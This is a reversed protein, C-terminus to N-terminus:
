KKDNLNDQILEKNLFKYTEVNPYPCVFRLKNDKEDSYFYFALMESEPLSERLVLLPFLKTIKVNEEITLESHALYLDGSVMPKDTRVRDTKSPNLGVGKFVEVDNIFGSGDFKSQIPRILTTMEFFERLELKMNKTLSDASKAAARVSSASPLGRHAIDNRLETSSELIKIVKENSFLPILGVKTSSSNKLDKLRNYGFAMTLSKVKSQGKKQEILKSKDPPSQGFGISILYLGLYEFFKMYAECKDKDDFKSEALEWIIALPTPLIQSFEQEYRNDVSQYPALQEQASTLDLFVSKKLLSVRALVAECEEWFGILKSQEPISPLAFRTNLWASLHINKFGSASPFNSELWDKGEEQHLFINYFEPLLVEQNIEFKIPNREKKSDSLSKYENVKGTHSELVFSGDNNLEVVDKLRIIQGALIEDRTHTKQFFLNFNIEYGIVGLDGDRLDRRTNNVWADSSFPSVEKTFYNEILEQPTLNPDLPLNEYDRLDSDAEFQVVKGNYEIAGTLSKSEGELEKKIVPEAKLNKNTIAALFQEKENKDLKLDTNILATELDVKFQNFDHHEDDGIEIKLKEAKEMLAYQYLWVERNLLEDIQRQKLEPFESNIFSLVESRYPELDGYNDEPKGKNWKDAYINFLAEMAPRNKNAVYRLSEISKSTIKASLRLPREICLRRYGVQHTNIIRCAYDAGEIDADVEAFERLCESIVQIHQQELVKRKAGLPKRMKSYLNSADILQVKGKRNAEKNNSLVWIFTAIGTNYFLDTPLAVIAELLDNELIFRRIESEGSGAGGSFMPSGNFIVGIRGGESVEGQVTLPDRMKNVLHMLFLLSGDSVRPLGAGFRGHHGKQHEEKIDREIAKWFLGFPPHSLLYDFKNSTFQDNSLTNGLKINNPEQGKLLISAKCIAYSESNLEQGYTNITTVSDTEDIYKLASTLFSGTGATPDYITRSIDKKDKGFNEENIVLSTILQAVDNPSYNEGSTENTAESFKRIMEDFMSSMEINSIVDPNLNLSEFKAIVDLLLGVEDLQEVIDKFKFHEFIDRVNSSFAYIYSELSQKANLNESFEFAKHKSTNFFKYGNPNNTTKTSEVLKSSMSDQSILSAFASHGDNRYEDSYTSLIDAQKVVQPRSEELLCDLRRLLTFPLIIKGFQSQKFSGRLIDAISWILNLEKNFENQYM